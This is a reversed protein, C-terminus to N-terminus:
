IRPQCSMRAGYRKMMDVLVQRDVSYAFARRVLHSNFPPKVTNFGVYDVRPGATEDLPLWPISKGLTDVPLV